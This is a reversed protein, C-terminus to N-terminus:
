YTVRVRLTWARPLPVAAFDGIAMPTSSMAAGYSGTEPDAGSYKTWTVLNRGGVIITAGRAGLAAAARGPLDFAITLERLKLYDADEFYGTPLRSAAIATAQDALPTGPVVRERCLDFQCRLNAIQNFLTQGARYDLTASLRLGRMFRWSSTLAAGQTPYPTGAWVSSPAMVVEGPAIIGDGNADSFGIVPLSWYGNAPYGQVVGQGTYGYPGGHFTPAPWAQKLVRNRNGWLSLHVDWGVSSRDILQSSIAAAVGRNGIVTGSFYMGSYGSSNSVYAFQLIRSRSDYVTAQAHVKGTLATVEGSLEFGRTREPELPPPPPLFPNILVFVLNTPPAQGAAGYAAHLAVRGLRGPQDPRAIWDVAMSHYTKSWFADHDFADHRLSGTVSFRGFGVREIGFVGTSKFRRMSTQISYSCGSSGPGCTEPSFRGLYETEHASLRELGVTTALRLGRWAINPATASVGFTRNAASRTGIGHTGPVVRGEHEDLEDLGYTGKLALWAFPSFHADLVAQTRDVHQTGPDQFFPTWSFGTSDSPGTLADLVPQYLPLRLTSSMRAVSTVVDLNRMPHVTGSGRLNWNRYDDSWTVAPVAYTAADGDLTGSVRFSGWPPGGTATLGLQRRPATAFPNRQVLPNFSQVYDQVCAGSAQVALSCAGQQNPVSPNDLDVGGYNAPWRTPMAEVTGQAFGELRVSGTRGQKTHILIVGAAAGPGYIATTAPGRLVEVSQVDEVPVDDIRSPGPGAGLLRSDDERTDIRIGDLMVIPPLDALLSRVGAFRVRAGGGSLGSGPVILLGPAQGILVDSLTRATGDRVIAAVDITYRDPNPPPQTTDPAQLAVAPAFLALVLVNM